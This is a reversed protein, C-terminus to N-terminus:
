WIIKIITRILKITNMAPGIRFSNEMSFNSMKVANITDIGNKVIKRDHLFLMDRFDTFESLIVM